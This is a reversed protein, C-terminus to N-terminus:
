VSGPAKRCASRKWTRYRSPLTSTSVCGCSSVATRSPLSPRPPSPRTCPRAKECAVAGGVPSFGCQIRSEPPITPRAKRCAREGGTPIPLPADPPPGGQGAAGKVRQGRSWSVLQGRSVRGVRTRARADPERPPTPHATPAAGRSHAAAVRQRRRARPPQRRHRPRRQHPRRQRTQLRGNRGTARRRPPAAASTCPRM